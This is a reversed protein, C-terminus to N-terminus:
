KKLKEFLNELAKLNELSLILHIKKKEFFLSHKIQMNPSLKLKKIETKWKKEAKQFEPFRFSWMGKLIKQQPNESSILTQLNIKKLIAEVSTKDRFMMEEMLDIIQLQYTRSFHVGDFLQILSDRDKKKFSCIRVATKLHIKDDMLIKKFEHGTLIDLRDLLERNITLNINTKEHIERPSSLGLVKKLFSLKEYLNLGFFKEKLNFNLFLGEKLSVNTKLVTVIKRNQSKYFYYADIGFIIARDQNIILEPFQPFKLNFGKFIEPKLPFSLDYANDLKLESLSATEIKM